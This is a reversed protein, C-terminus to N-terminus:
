TLKIMSPYVESRYKSYLKYKNKEGSTSFPDIWISYTDFVDYFNNILDEIFESFSDDHDLDTSNSDKYEKLLDEGALSLDYMDTDELTDDFSMLYNATDVFLKLREVDTLNENKSDQPFLVHIEWQM